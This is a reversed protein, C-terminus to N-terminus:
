DGPLISDGRWYPNGVVYDLFSGCFEDPDSITGRMERVCGDFSAGISAFAKLAIVRSPTSSKRWSPPPDFDNATVGPALIDLIRGLANATEEEEALARTADVDTEITTAHIESAAYTGFGQRADEVVVVYTPSEESAEITEDDTEVTSTLVDAVVGVGQPTSVEDGESYRTANDTQGGGPGEDFASRGDAGVSANAGVPPTTDPAGSVDTPTPLAQTDEPFSGTEVYTQAAEGMVGLNKAVTSRKQAITAEEEDSLEFLDPWQIEYHGGEADPLVGAAQLTSILRRIGFPGAYQQQRERIVGFDERLNTDASAIAGAAAGEIFQKSFGTAASIAKLESDILGTPDVVDGGIESVEAGVTNLSPQRGHLWERIDGQTDESRVTQPDVKEPDYNIHIGKDAGRYSLEAASGLVKEIDQLPNLIRELRPRSQYEDTLPPQSPMAVVREHHVRTGAADSDDYDDDLDESWDIHYHTPENWRTDGFDGFDIEDVAFQPIVRFGRIDDLSPESGLDPADALNEIEDVDAFDVFLLAYEGFGAARDARHLYSTADLNRQLKQVADEFATTADQDPADVVDPDHRWTMRAPKDVMGAAFPNRLYTAALDEESPEVLWGFAEYVDRNEFGTDGLQAALALRLGTEFQENATLGDRGDSPADHDAQGNTPDGSM